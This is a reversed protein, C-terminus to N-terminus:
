VGARVAASCRGGGGCVAPGANEGPCARLGRVAAAGPGGAAPDAGVCVGRPVAACRPNGGSRLGGAGANGLPAADLHRRGHRGAAGGCHAPGGGAAGMREASAGERCRGAPDVAPVPVSGFCRAGLRGHHFGRCGGGRGPRGALPLRCVGSQAARRRTDVLRGAARVPRPWAPRGPAGGAGGAGAAGGPRDVGAAGGPGAGGPVHAAVLAV